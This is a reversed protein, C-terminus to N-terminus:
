FASRPNSTRLSPKPHSRSSRHPVASCGLSSSITERSMFGPASRIHYRRYASFLPILTALVAVVAPVWVLAPASRPGRRGLVAM